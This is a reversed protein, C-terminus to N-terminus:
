VQWRGLFSGAYSPFNVATVPQDFSRNYHRSLERLPGATTDALPIKRSITFSFYFVVLDM